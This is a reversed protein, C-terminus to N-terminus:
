LVVDAHRVSTVLLRGDTSDLFVSRGHEGGVDRADLPVAAAVLAAEVAAVNRMGLNRGSDTLVRSFMSAGGAIRARLRHREAGSDAMAAILAPVATSAFRGIPAGPRADAPTPLMVHALGAVRQEADYLAVAVCSGLGITLLVGHGAAVALEGIRVARRPVGDGTATHM